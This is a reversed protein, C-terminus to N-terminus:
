NVFVPVLLKPFHPVNYLFSLFLTLSSNLISPTLFHSSFTYHEYVGSPFQSIVLCAHLPPFVSSVLSDNVIAVCSLILFHRVYGTQKKDTGPESTRERRMCQPRGDGVVCGDYGFHITSRLLFIASQHTCCFELNYCCYYETNAGVREYVTFFNILRRANNSIVDLLLFLIQFFKVRVLRTLLSQPNPSM